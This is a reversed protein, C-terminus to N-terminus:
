RRTKLLTAQRILPDPNATGSEQAARYEIMENLKAALTTEHARDAELWLAFLHTPEIRQRGIAAMVEAAEKIEGAANFEWWTKFLYAIALLAQNDTRIWAHPWCHRGRRPDSPKPDFATM